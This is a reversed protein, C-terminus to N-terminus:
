CGQLVDVAAIRAPVGSRLRQRAAANVAIGSRVAAQRGPPRFSRRPVGRAHQRLPLSSRAARARPSRSTFPSAAATQLSSSFRPDCGAVRLECVGLITGAQLVGPASSAEGGGQRSRVNGSEPPKGTKPDKKRSYLRIRRVETQSDRGDRQLHRAENCPRIWVSWTRFHISAACGRTQSTMHWAGCRCYPLDWHLKREQPM